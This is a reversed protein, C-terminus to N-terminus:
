YWWTRNFYKKRFEYYEDALETLINWINKISAM